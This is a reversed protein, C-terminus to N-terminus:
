VSTPVNNCPKIRSLVQASLESFVDTDTLKPEPVQFNIGLRHVCQYFYRQWNSPVDSHSKCKTKADMARIRGCGRISCLRGEKVELESFAVDQYSGADPVDEAVGELSQVIGALGVRTQYSKPLQARSPGHASLFHGALESRKFGTRCTLCVPFGGLVTSFNMLTLM